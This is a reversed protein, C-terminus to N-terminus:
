AGASPLYWRLPPCRHEPVPLRDSYHLRFGINEYVICPKRRAILVVGNCATAHSGLSGVRGSISNFRTTLVLIALRSMSVDWGYIVDKEYCQGGQSLEVDEGGGGRECGAAAAGGSECRGADREADAAEPEGASPGIKGKTPKRASSTGTGSHDNAKTVMM